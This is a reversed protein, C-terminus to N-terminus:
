GIETGSKFCKKAQFPSKYYIYNDLSNEDYKSRAM